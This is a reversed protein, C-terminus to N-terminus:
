HKAGINKHIYEKREQFAPSNQERPYPLDIALVEKVSGPAPSMIIIKQSLVLAEAINHTVLIITKGTKHWLELLEGQLRARTSVDLSSFPEDLLLAAPEFALARGIAVRQAMGGSLEHPYAQRFDKLGVLALSKDTLSEVEQKSRSDRIGFAINQEVTLWPFLRPEQFVIARDHGPGLVQSGKFLVEGTTQRELGAIIRLLTTKGCGSPGVITVFEGRHCSFTLNRLAQVKGWNSTFTKSINNVQILIEKNSNEPNRKKNSNNTNTSM